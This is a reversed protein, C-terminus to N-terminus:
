KVFISKFKKNMLLMDKSAENIKRKTIPNSSKKDELAKRARGEAILRGIRRSFNDKPSCIAFGMAYTKRNKDELECRTIYSNDEYHFHNFRPKLQVEAKLM